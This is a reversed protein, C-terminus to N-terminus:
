EEEAAEVGNLFAKDVATAAFTSESWPNAANCTNHNTSVARKRTGYQTYDNVYIVM